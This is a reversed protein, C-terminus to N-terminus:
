MYLGQAHATMLAGTMICLQTAETPTAFLRPMCFDNNIARMSRSFCTCACMCPNGFSVFDQLWKEFFNSVLTSRLLLNYLFCHCFHSSLGLALLWLSPYLLLHSNQSTHLSGRIDHTLKEGIKVTKHWERSAQVQLDRFIGIKQPCCRCGVVIVSLCVM